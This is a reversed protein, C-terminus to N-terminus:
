FLVVWQTELASRSAGSPHAARMVSPQEGVIRRRTLPSSWTVPRPNMRVLHPHFAAPPEAATATADIIVTNCFV